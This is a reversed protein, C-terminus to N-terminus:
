RASLRERFREMGLRTNLFGPSSPEEESRVLKLFNCVLMTYAKRGCRGAGQRRLAAIGRCGLKLQRRSRREIPYVDVSSLRRTPGFVGRQANERMKQIGRLQAEHGEIRDKGSSSKQRVSIIAM